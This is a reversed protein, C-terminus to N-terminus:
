QKFYFKVPPYWSINVIYYPYDKFDSDAEDEMNTVYCINTENDLNTILKKRDYFIASAWMESIGYNLIRNDPYLYALTWPIHGHINEGFKFVTSDSIKENMLAEFDSKAQAYNKEKYFSKAINSSTCIVGALTLILLITKHKKFENYAFTIFFIVFISLPFLYREYFVPQMLLSIITASLILLLPTILCILNFSANLNGQHIKSICKKLCLSLILLAIFKWVNVMPIISTFFGFLIKFTVPEIWYGKSVESVQRIVVSAWPLYLIVGLVASILVNRILKKDKKICLISILIFNIALGFATWYQSYAGFEAFLVYLLFYKLNGKKIIYYSCICCLMCFLMCWSYMRIEVAFEFVSYFSLLLSNFLISYKSSFEKSFFLHSICLISIVPIASVIKAATVSGPFMMMAIKLILYYLPPHVDGATVTIIDSVPLLLITRTFYEDIQCVLHNLPTVLLYGLFLVSLVLFFIGLLDKNNKYLM